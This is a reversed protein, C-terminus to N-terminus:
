EDKEEFKINMLYDTARQAQAAAKVILKSDGRLANIWGRLYAAARSVKMMSDSIHYLHNRHWGKFRQILHFVTLYVRTVCETTQYCIERIIRFLLVGTSVSLAKVM